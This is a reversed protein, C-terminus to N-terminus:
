KRRWNGDDCYVWSKLWRALTARDVESKRADPIWNAGGPSSLRGCGVSEGRFLIDVIAIPFVPSNGIATNPNDRRVLAIEGWEHWISPTPNQVGVGRPFLGAGGRDRGDPFTNGTWMNPFECHTRQFGTLRKDPNFLGGTCWQM